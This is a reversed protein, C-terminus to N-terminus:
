STCRLSAPIVENGCLAVYRGASGGAQMAADTVLHMLGSVDTAPVVPV